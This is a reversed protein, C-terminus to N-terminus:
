RSEYILVRNHRAKGILFGTLAGIGAGVLATLAVGAAEENDGTEDAAVIVGGAAAGVGAGVGAGILTPSVSLKGGVRYVRFIEGRDLNIMRRGRSLTLRADTVSSVRGKVTKGSKLKVELRENPAVAAVAAWERSPVNTEQASVVPSQASIIILALCFALAKMRM